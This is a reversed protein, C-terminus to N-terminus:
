RGAGQLQKLLVRAEAEGAFAAGSAFLRELESRARATDGSKALAQAYHYQIEANDPVKSQAQQLLQVARRAKGQALLTVALTDMVAPNAPALKHAREAHDLARADGARQLSWAYNNLLVVNDPAEQLLLAYHENALAHNGRQMANQALYFRSVSDDPHDKLWKLLRADAEAAKGALLQSNHLKIALTPSAQLRWASEYKQSAQAPQKQALLTDGELIWGIPSQSLQKQVKRAMETAQAFRGSQLDLSVLAAQADLFDPKIQLAHELSARAAETQKMALQANALKIRAVPSQPAMAALKRYSALANEKDGTALQVSGLLDLVAPNNPSAAQAERALALAKVPDNKRLHYQALLMRPEPSAPAVRAARELLTVYDKEQGARASFQALGLLAQVNKADHQLLTEFRKRAAAPNNAQLDLQALNAAAPYFDPRVALAQEFSRRASAFDKKGLYAGGRLNYVIPNNPQKKELAAVAHLARDSEKNRMLTLILLLDTKYTGGGTDMAAASELEALARDTDGRALHSVGLGTRIAASKPDIAAAKELMQNARTYNRTHLYIDGALALLQPDGSEEPKLPRLTALAQENQGLKAQTAALLKRAYTSGPVKELVKNLQSAAQEYSGQAYDVAGALLLSPPHEPAAKLVQHLHDRAQDLKGGRFAVLAQMYRVALNNPDNERAAEVEQAAEPLRGSALHISAISLHAATNRPSAKLVERYAAIAAEPQNKLRLLDAKLLRADKDAPSKKLANEVEALAADPKGQIAALRALGLHPAALDPAAKLADDFLRAAKDPENMALEATGRAVLIRAQREATADEPLKIEELVRQFAGQGLLAEALAVIVQDKAYGADRARRLEKEAAAYDGSRNHLVGLLYRAEANKEDKQLVNKLQITAAKDDGRAQLQKAEALYRATSDGSGCGATLMALLLTAHLRLQRPM